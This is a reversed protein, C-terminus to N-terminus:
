QYEKIDEIVQLRYDHLWGDKIEAKNLLKFLYKNETFNECVMIAMEQIYPDITNFAIEVMDELPDGIDNNYVDFNGEKMFTSIFMLHCYEHASLKKNKYEDIYQRFERAIDGSNGYEIEKEVYMSAVSHYGVEYQQSLYNKFSM